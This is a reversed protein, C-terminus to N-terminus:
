PPTDPELVLSLLSLHVLLLLRVAAYAVVLKLVLGHKKTTLWGAGLLLLGAIVFGIVAASALGFGLDSWRMGDLMSKMFERETGASQALWMLLAGLICFPSAVVYLLPSVAAILYVRAHDVQVPGEARRGARHLSVVATVVFALMACSLGVGRLVAVGMFTPLFDVAHFFDLAYASRFYAVCGYALGFVVGVPFSRTAVLAYPSIVDPPSAAPPSAAPPAYAADPELREDM